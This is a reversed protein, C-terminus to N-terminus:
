TRVRHQIHIYIHTHIHASPVMPCDAYAASHDNEWSPSLLICYKSTNGLQKRIPMSQSITKKAVQNSRGKEPEEAEGEVGLEEVRCLNPGM